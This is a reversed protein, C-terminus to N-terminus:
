NDYGSMTDGMAREQEALRQKKKEEEEVGGEGLHYKALSKKEADKEKEIQEMEEVTCPARIKWEYNQAEVEGDILWKVSVTNEQYWQLCTSGDDLFPQIQDVPSQRQHYYDGFVLGGRLHFNADLLCVPTPPTLPTGGLSLAFFSGRRRKKLRNAHHVKDVETTYSLPSLINRFEHVRPPPLGKTHLIGMLGATPNIHSLCRNLDEQTSPISVLTVTKLIKPQSMYIRVKFTDKKDDFDYESEINVSLTSSRQKQADSKRFEFHKQLAVITQYQDTGEAVKM